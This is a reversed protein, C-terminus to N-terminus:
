LDSRFLLNFLSCAANLNYTTMFHARCFESIMGKPPGASPTWITTKPGGTIVLCAENPSWSAEFIGIYKSTTQCLDGSVVINSARLQGALSDYWATWWGQGVQQFHAEPSLTATFPPTSAATSPPTTTKEAPPETTSACAALLTVLLILGPVKSITRMM